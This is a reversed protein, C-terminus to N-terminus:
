QGFNPIVLGTIRGDGNLFSSNSVLGVELRTKKLWKEWEVLSESREKRLHLPGEYVKRLSM